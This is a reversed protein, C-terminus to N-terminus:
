ARYSAAEERVAQRINRATDLGIGPVAALAEEDATFVAEVTSFHALLDAARKAGIGPLGQLIYRQLAAKGKPRYGRRPLGGHAMTRAQQATYLFTRATEEPNRTRLVPLGIFVSVMVLAGQVAERRIRNDRLESFDGELVLAPHFETQRALRLAQDFLRGSILSAAFDPLTKREFLFRNDIQYDGAPLREIRVDFAEMRALAEPVGSNRERDDAIVTIKGDTTTM